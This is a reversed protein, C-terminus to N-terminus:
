WEQERDLGTTSFYEIKMPSVTGYQNETYGCIQYGTNAWLWDFTFETGGISHDYVYTTVWSAKM